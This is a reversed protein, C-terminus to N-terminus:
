QKPNVNVLVQGLGCDGSFTCVRFSFSDLGSFGPNPTYLFTGDNNPTVSGNQAVSEVQVGALDVGNTDYGEFPRIVALSDQSCNATTVQQSGCWPDGGGTCGCSCFWCSCSGGGSCSAKCQLAITAQSSASAFATIIAALILSKLLTRNM